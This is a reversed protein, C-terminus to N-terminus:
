EDSWSLPCLAMSVRSDGEFKEEFFNFLIVKEKKKFKENFAEWERVNLHFTKQPSSFDSM